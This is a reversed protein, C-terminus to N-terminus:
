KMGLCSRSGKSFSVFYKRLQTASPQLWREPDFKRPDPFITPNNHILVSTMGVPTGPPITWDKYQLVVDPSIRQLRHSAGYSFRLGETIVASLYPLQEVQQWRSKADRDSMVTKLERQVKVLISPNDLIHYVLISLTHATTVTGAGVVAQAETVLHDTEKEQPRIQDNTLIDYFITRQGDDKKGEDLDGKMDNVQNALSAQQNILAMMGPTMLKTLWLPMSRMLPELWTFHEIVYGNESLDMMSKHWYPAFDPDDTLGYSKAFAYQWIVDGTLASFADIINVTTGSFKMSQLRIVLKDIVDQVTPELRQVSVKSFFPSLAARRTRHLEHDVTGFTSTSRGFMRVAWLYKETKRVSGGVYIEDYFDPDNIHLEYPSIRIIPGTKVHANHKEIYLFREGYQDHLDQLKFTYSGRKIVDYYFEYWLTLAALKPGPIKALPSLYVRYIALCVIYATFLALVSVAVRGSLNEM